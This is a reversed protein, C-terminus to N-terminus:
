IGAIKVQSITIGLHIYEDFILIEFDTILPGGVAIDGITQDAHTSTVRQM